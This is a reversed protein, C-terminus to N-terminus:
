GVIASLGIIWAGRSLVFYFCVIVCCASGFEHYFFYFSHCYCALGCIVEVFAPIEVVVFDFINGEKCGVGLFYFTNGDHRDVLSSTVHPSNLSPPRSISMFYGYIGLILFQTQPHHLSRQPLNKRSLIPRTPSRMSMIIIVFSESVMSNKSLVIRMIMMMIMGLTDWQFLVKGSAAAVVIELRRAFDVRPPYFVGVWLIGKM